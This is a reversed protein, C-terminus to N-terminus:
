REDAREAAVLRSASVGEPLQPSPMAQLEDVTCPAAPPDVIGRRILDTVAQADGPVHNQLPTTRATTLARDKMTGIQASYWTRDVRDACAACATVPGPPDIRRYLLHKTQLHNTISGPHGSNKGTPDTMGIEARYVFVRGGADPRDGLGEVGPPEVGRKQKRIM